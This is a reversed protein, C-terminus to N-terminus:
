NTSIEKKPPITGCEPCREPTARLDYGCNKCTGTTIRRRRKLARLFMSLPLIAFICIPCWYPIALVEQWYQIGLYNSQRWKWQFGLVSPSTPMFRYTVPINSDRSMELTRVSDSSLKFGRPYWQFYGKLDAISKDETSSNHHIDVNCGGLLSSVNWDLLIYRGAVFKDGSWRLYDCRWYSRVSILIASVCLLLSGVALVNFLWRRVWKM